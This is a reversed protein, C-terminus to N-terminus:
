KRSIATKIDCGGGNWRWSLTINWAEGDQEAKFKRLRATTNNMYSVDFSKAENHKLNGKVSGSWGDIPNQEDFSFTGDEDIKIDKFEHKYPGCYGSEAIWEEDAAGATAALTPLALAAVLALAMLRMM